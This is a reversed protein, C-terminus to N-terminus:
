AVKGAFTKSCQAQAYTNDQCQASFNLGGHEVCSVKPVFHFEFARKEPTIVIWNGAELSFM